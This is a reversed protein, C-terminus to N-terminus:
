VLSSINLLVPIERAVGEISTINQSKIKITQTSQYGRFPSGIFNGNEYHKDRQENTQASNFIINSEDIGKCVLYSRVFDKDSNM